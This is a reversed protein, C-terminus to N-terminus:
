TAILKAPFYKPNVVGRTSLYISDEFEISFWKNSAFSDCAHLLDVIHNLFIVWRSAKQTNVSGRTPARWHKSANSSKVFTKLIEHSLDKLNIQTSNPFRLAFCFLHSSVIQSAMLLNELGSAVNIFGRLWAHRPNRRKPFVRALDILLYTHM